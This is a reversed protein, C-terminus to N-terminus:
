TSKWYKAAAEPWRSGKNRWLEVALSAFRRAEDPDKFADRPIFIGSLGFWVHIDGNHERMETIRRWPVLRRREPTIDSVGEPALGSTCTRITKASPLRKLIALALVVLNLLGVAAAAAILRFVGNVYANSSLTPLPLRVSLLLVCAGTVLAIRRNHFLPYLNCRWNAARTSRYTIRLLAPLPITCGERFKQLLIPKCRSCCYAGGLIIVDEVRFESECEVCTVIPAPQPHTADPGTDTRVIRM